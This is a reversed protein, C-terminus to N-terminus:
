AQTPHLRIAIPCRSSARVAARQPEVSQPRAVQRHPEVRRKQVALQQPREASERPAVRQPEASQKAAAPQYSAAWGLPEARPRPGVRQLEASQKAAVPPLVAEPRKTGGAAKTGGSAKATSGGVGTNGGEDDSSGCGVIMMGALASVSLFTIASRIACAMRGRRLVHIELRAQLVIAAPPEMRRAVRWEPNGCHVNGQVSAPTM